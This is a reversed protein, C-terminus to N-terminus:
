EVINQQAVSCVCVCEVINIDVGCPLVIIVQILLTRLWIWRRPLVQEPVRGLPAQSHAPLRVSGGDVSFSVLQYNCLMQLEKLM